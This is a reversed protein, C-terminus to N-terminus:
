LVEFEAALNVIFFYVKHQQSIGLFGEQKLLNLVTLLYSLSFFSKTRLSVVFYKDRLSDATGHAASSVSPNFKINETEQNPNELFM